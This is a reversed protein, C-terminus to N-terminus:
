RNIAGPVLGKGDVYRTGIAGVRVTDRDLGALERIRYVSEFDELLKRSAASIGRETLSGQERSRVVMYDDSIGLSQRKGKKGGYRIGVKTM